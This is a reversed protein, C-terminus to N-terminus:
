NMLANIDDDNSTAAVADNLFAEIEKEPIDKMMEKIEAQENAAKIEDNINTNGETKVLTVLEDIKDQSVKKNVNKKIWAQPDKMVNPQDTLLLWGSVVVIGIVVAAAAFRYWRRGTISIIKTAKKVGPTALGAFYGAPVSYPNKNKLKSLLPSLEAIEEESTKHNVNATLQQTVRDAFNQFFEAPVSYPLEKSLNSLMPSLYELEEKANGAELAKIRAMIRAPLGEFYGYPVVFLNQPSLNGLTSEIENLENLITNRSTM